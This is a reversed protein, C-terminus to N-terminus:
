FRAPPKGDRGTNNLGVGRAALTRGRRFPDCRDDHGDGRVPRSGTGVSSAEDFEADGIRRRVAHVVREIAPELSPWASVGLRAREVEALTVADAATSVDGVGLAILGLADLCYTTDTRLGQNRLLAASEELLELAEPERSELLRIFALQQLAQAIQPENDIRRARSLSLLQSEEAARLDGEAALISGLMAEALAVGWDHGLGDFLASSERLADIADNVDNEVRYRVFGLQHLAVAAEFNMRERRFVRLPEELEVLVGAYDGRHVRTLAHLTRLKATTVEDLEVESGSVARLWSAPEDVADCVFYLVIVDWAIEVVVAHQGTDLATSTAQRLNPREPNLRAVWERQGPGCLSPQAREALRRFYDLHRTAMTESEGLEALRETAYGRVTEFMRFRPSRGTEDAPTVFSQDLLRGLGELVDDSDVGCVADAAEVTWGGAFVGLRALLIRESTGLLEYSWDITARVTRQREPFDAGTVALFSLRDTLRELLEMPSLLRTRTAALEIALPIGEVRRCIEAVVEADADLDVRAAIAGARELFLQVAPEAALLESTLGPKPIPLPPVPVVHEARIRLARRSTALIQLEPAAEILEAIASEVHPIQELNDLVLCTAHGRVHDVIVDRPSRRGHPRAGLREAITHLAHGSEQVTDLPVFIASPPSGLRRAIELALRTKGIGGIGTLTVLRDGRGLQEVVREVESQRGIIDTGPVPTDSAIRADHDTSSSEFRETLLLALDNAVYGALEEPTAFRKYSARDDSAFDEFLTGLRDEREAAPEKIYLLRPIEGALRYEDELGSVDEGHAIWGYKQWYIGVFVHSQALYSRYLERPPHPRAGLEFMVPTLRLQEIAERVARREDALEALTSSVFVRLRQDPTHIVPAVPM